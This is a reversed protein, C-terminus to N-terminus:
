RQCAGQHGPFCFEFKSSAPLNRSVCVHTIAKVDVHRARARLNAAESFNSGSKSVRSEHPPSSTSFDDRLTEATCELGNLGGEWCTAHKERSVFQNIVDSPIDNYEFMKQLM